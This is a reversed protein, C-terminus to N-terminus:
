SCYGNENWQEVKSILLSDGDRVLFTITPILTRLPTATSPAGSSDVVRTQSIDRCVVLAIDGYGGWEDADELKEDRFSSAGITFTTRQSFEADESLLVGYYESTVFPELVDVASTGSIYGDLAANFVTYADVAEALLASESDTPTATTTSPARAPNSCSSLTLTLTMLLGATLAGIWRTGRTEGMGFVM